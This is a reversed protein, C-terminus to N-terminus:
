HNPGLSESVAEDLTGAIPRHPSAALGKFLEVAKGTPCGTVHPHTNPSEPRAGCPCSHTTEWLYELQQYADVTAALQDSYQKQLGAVQERLAACHVNVLDALIREPGATFFTGPEPCGKAFWDAIRDPDPRERLAALEADHPLSQLIAILESVKM